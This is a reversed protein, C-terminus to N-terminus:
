LHVGRPRRLAPPTSPQNPLRRHQATRQLATGAGTCPGQRGAGPCGPLPPCSGRSAAGRDVWSAGGRRPRKDRSVVPGVAEVTAAATGRVGGRGGGGGGAARALGAGHAGLWGSEAFNVGADRGLMKLAASDYARAAEVEDEYSGMHRARKLERDWVVAVWKCCGGNWSVGKYQSQVRAGAGEGSIM